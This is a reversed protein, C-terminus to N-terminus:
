CIGPTIVRWLERLHSTRPQPIHELVGNALAFAFAGYAFPLARTAPVHFLTVGSPAATQILRQGAEIRERDPEVGVVNRAGIRLMAISSAAWGAGYDLVRGSATSWLRM